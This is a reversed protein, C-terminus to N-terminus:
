ITEKERCNECVWQDSEFNLDESYNECVDCIGSTSGEKIIPVVRRMKLRLSLLDLMEPSARAIDTNTIIGVIKTKKLVPFRRIKFKKMKEVVKSINDDPNVFVIPSSMIQKAKIKKPDKALAVIRKNIDTETIMGIPNNKKLVIISGVRFHAMKKATQQVTKDQDVTIIRKTMIDKVLFEEM